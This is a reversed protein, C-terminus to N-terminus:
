ERCNTCLSQPHSRKNQVLRDVSIADDKHQHKLTNDLRRIIANKKYRDFVPAYSPNPLPSASVRAFRRFEQVSVMGGILTINVGSFRPPSQGGQGISTVGSFFTCKHCSIPVFVHILIDIIVYVKLFPSWKFVRVM